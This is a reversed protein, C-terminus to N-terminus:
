QPMGGEDTFGLAPNSAMVKGQLEIQQGAAKAAVEGQKIRLEEQKIQLEITKIKVDIDGKQKAIQVDVMAKQAQGELLKAQAAVVPDAASQPKPPQKIAQEIANELQEEVERGADFARAAFMVSQKVFPGMAPGQALLPAMKEIVGMMTTLFGLRDTREQSADKQGTKDTEIGIRYCRISDSHLVAEVDEWATAQVAQQASQVVEQPLMQPPPTMMPQGAQQAQQAAQQYQQMQAMIQKAQALVQQAAAQEDAGPLEIGSMESLQERSYHEAIFEGKIRYADRAFKQQAEKREDMRVSGFDRKIQQAGMTERPDTQGRAIDSIGTMQYILDILERRQAHLQELVQVTATLDEYQVQAALGGGQQLEAWSEVAILKNDGLEPLSALEPVSKNYVGRLRLADTLIYIRESIRNVEEAQDRYFGYEPLPILSNETRDSYIPMPCPFFGNLRFPDADEQLKKEYDEAVYIRTRDRKDWIEWVLARKFRDGDKGDGRVDGKSGKEEYSLPIDSAHDPWYKDLDDRTFLHGRAVWPIERVDKAPGHIFKDWQVHVLRTDQTEGGTAEDTTSENELWVNGRGQIRSDKVAAIIEADDGNDANSAELARELVLSVTRAIAQDKGPKPNKRSVSPKGFDRGCAAEITKTNAALLNLRGFERTKEDRYASITKEAQKRWEEERDLAADIEALWHKSSPDSMVGGEEEATTEVIGGIASETM